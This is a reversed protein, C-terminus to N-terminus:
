RQARRPAVPEDLGGLSVTLRRATANNRGPLAQWRQCPAAMENEAEGATDCATVRYLRLRDAFSGGYRLPIQSYDITLSLPPSGEPGPQVTAPSAVGAAPLLLTGAPGPAFRLRFAMGVPSWAAAEAPPLVEAQVVVPQTFAGAAAVVSLPLDGLAVQGGAPSLAAMAAGVVVGRKGAETDVWAAAMEEEGVAEAPLPPLVAVAPEALPELVPTYQPYSEV